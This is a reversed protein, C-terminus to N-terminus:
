CRSSHNVHHLAPATGPPPCGCSAARPHITCLAARSNRMTAPTPAVGACINIANRRRFISSNKRTAATGFPGFISAASNAFYSICYTPGGSTPTAPTAADDAPTLHPHFRDHRRDSVIESATRATAACSSRTTDRVSWSKRRSTDCPQSHKDHSLVRSWDHSPRSVKRAGEETKEAEWDFLLESRRRDHLQGPSRLHGKWM